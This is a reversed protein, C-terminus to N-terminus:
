QFTSPDKFSAITEIVENATKTNALINQYDKNSKVDVGLEKAAKIFRKAVGDAFQISAGLDGYSDIMKSFPKDANTLYDQYDRWLGDSKKLNKFLEQNRKKLDDVLALEIKQSKLEVKEKSLTEFIREITTKM